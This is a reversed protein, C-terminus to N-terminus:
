AEMLDFEYKLISLGTLCATEVRLVQTGLTVPSLGLDSLGNIENTSFGGESGVVLGIAAPNLQRLKLREMAKKATFASEGEYFFLCESIENRHM